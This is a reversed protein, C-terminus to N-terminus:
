NFNLKDDFTNKDNSVNTTRYINFILGKQQSTPSEPKTYQLIRSKGSKYMKTQIGDVINSFDNSNKVQNFLKNEKRFETEYKNVLDNIINELKRKLNIPNKETKLKSPNSLLKDIFSTKQNPNTLERGMILFFIKNSTDNLKEFLLDFDTNSMFAIQKSDLLNNFDNSVNSLTGFDKQLEAYPQGNVNFVIPSSQNSIRGDVQSAVVNLKRIIQIYNEQTKILNNLPKAITLKFNSQMNKIYEIMNLKIYIIPYDNPNPFKKLLESIIPNKNDEIEKIVDSFYKDIKAEWNNPKGYIQMILSGNGQNINGFKYNREINFIQVVGLNASDKISQLQNFVANFYNSTETLLKDMITDYNISGSTAESGIITGITTGGDNTTIDPIQQYSIPNNLGELIDKDLELYSEDTATAREDYIETNAYYSFSLANQLQEVPKKLGMGGIMKFSMTVNAIMPQLGIGEPNMDLNLPDYTFSVSDPIIKTNYFDGIRLILVPPTGFSTNVADNYKPRGDAGITPITEGPRVCQNLFVLRANLGEPTMSHFAPNFYKIKEKISDYMMPSENSLVDFYDCESFLNRLIKKSIGDTNQTTTVIPSRPLPTVTPTQDNNTNTNTNPKEQNELGIKPPEENNPKTAVINTITVRRCAMASVSYVQANGILDTNCNVQEVTTEKFKPTATSVEGEAASKIKLKGSDIYTKLTKSGDAPDKQLELYKKISDIRRKSLKLNYNKDEGLASASGVLEMNITGEANLIEFAKKIFEDKFYNFSPQIISDFFQGVNRNKDCYAKDKTCTTNTPNFLNNTQTLYSSKNNIYTNYTTEYDTNATESNSPGPINNDFYFSFDVFNDKLEAVTEKETTTNTNAPDINEVPIDEKVRLISERSSKPNQLINQYQILQNVPITNFKKALEYIDYKVCGAFFSSMISEVREKTQGKMQQRIVTNIVSPHDVIIKFSISGSRNTEKYTYMPEPRGLFSTGQFSASSTDNFKLDYPPFWMVRGGNPGRECAPLDDYTFGPRSSTRWALNEISFMYKKAVLKGQDNPLINTSNPQRLPAINLNYTNDLVSYSFKRGFKTIGDSKQLDNFTFYPTDKTFLRCYEVGVERGTTIIENNTNSDVYSIVKSGKTIERYGDNFVKSVQNIANGVHKLRNAGTVKDGSDVLRQTNDLISDTRLTLNTSQNLEYSSKILNYDDDISGIGGGPKVKFGANDKYKPSVWIFGGDLSGGDALTKGALGFNLRGENGEFLIGLQDPGYVPAQVQQGSANIPVQNPPSTIQSYDRIRPGLYNTNAPPTTFLGTLAQIGTQVVGRIGGFNTDYTPKYKNYELNSFLISKQGNSTYALFTESPNRFLNMVPGIIGATLRNITGLTRLTRSGVRDGFLSDTFYDGPIPSDPTYVGSIRGIFTFASEIPGEPVTIRYNPQVVPDTGLVKLSAFFPNTYGNLNTKALSVKLLEADIRAQFLDRLQIAGIQALKSDDTIPGNTGLANPNIYLQYASYSSPTFIPPNWYPQYVKNNLQLDDITVLLDYGGEPGYINSSYAIDIESEYLLDMNTETPDYENEPRFSNFRVNENIFRNGNIYENPSDIVNSDGINIQSNYNTITTSWVGSLSYPALNRALLSERRQNTSNFSLPSEPM